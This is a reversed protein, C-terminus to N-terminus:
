QKQELQRKMQLINLETYSSSSSRLSSRKHRHVRRTSNGEEYTAIIKKLSQEEKRLSLNSQVKRSPNRLPNSNKRQQLHHLRSQRENKDNPSDQDFCSSNNNNREFPFASSFLAYIAEHDLENHKKKKFFLNGPYYRSTAKERNGKMTTIDDLSKYKRLRFRSLM